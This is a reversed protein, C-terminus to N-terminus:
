QLLEPQSSKLCGIAVNGWTCRLYVKRGRGVEVRFTNTSMVYVDGSSQQVAVAFPWWLGGPQRGEAGFHAEFVPRGDNLAWRSVRHLAPDALYLQGTAEHAAVGYPGPRLGGFAGDGDGKM